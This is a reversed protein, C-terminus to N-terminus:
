GHPRGRADAIDTCFMFLMIVYGTRRVGLIRNRGGEPIAINALLVLGNPSDM